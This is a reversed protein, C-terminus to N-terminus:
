NRPRLREGCDITKPDRPGSREDRFHWRFWNVTFTQSFATCSSPLTECDISANVNISTPWSFDNFIIFCAALPYKSVLCFMKGKVLAATVRPWVAIVAYIVVFWFSVLPVFYYFQYARGMILCLVAVLINMRTMVQFSILCIYKIFCKMSELCQLALLLNVLLFSHVPTFQSGSDNQRSFWPLRARPPFFEKTIKCRTQVSVHLCFCSM